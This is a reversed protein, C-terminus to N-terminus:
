YFVHLMLHSFRPLFLAILNKCYSFDSLIKKKHFGYDLLCPSELLLEKELILRRRDTALLVCWMNIKEIKLSSILFQLFYRFDYIKKEHSRLFNLKSILSFHVCHTEIKSCSGIEDAVLGM